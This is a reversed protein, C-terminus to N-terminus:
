QNDFRKQLFELLESATKAEIQKVDEKGKTVADRLECLAKYGGALLAKAENRSFGAADRLLSEVDKVELSKVSTVNAFENCPATVVSIEFLYLDTLVQHGQSNYHSDRVAYGISFSDVAGMSILERADQALQTKAFRARIFLGHDDIRLEEIKGIPLKMDHQWLFRVKQNEILTRNFAGPAIIDNAHDPGTNFTSAYGEVTGSEEDFATVKFEVHKTQLLM